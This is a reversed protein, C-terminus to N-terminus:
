GMRRLEAVMRAFPASWDGAREQRFLRMTPYWPSDERELQWRWDPVFPLALWVPRALAGALHAVSTDVSIVLDLAMMVAATDLFGGPGSDFDSGLTEVSMGAIQEPGSDKQLSILRLDPIAALEAFAQLGASRRRDNGNKPNGQWCIGIKRGGQGLRVRWRAVREPDAAVYPVQAPITALTTALRHPISMMPCHLDLSLPRVDTKEPVVTIDPGLTRCLAQLMPQVALIVRAGRRALIPAFRAFQLTDGLGQEAYLYLTKGAPDQGAQWASGEKPPVPDNIIGRWRWEYEDFGQLFNGSLMLAHGLNFHAKANDPAQTVALTLNEIASQIQGLDLLAVGRGLQAQDFGPRLALARGHAELAEQARGLSRLAFGRNNHAAASNPELALARECAALAEQARNLGLLAAGRNSHAPAYEPALAVARDLAALGEEAQEMRSLISGRRNHAEASDSKLALARELSGLADELRGISELLRARNMQADFDAPDIRVAEEFAALAAQKDGSKAAAMGKLNHAAVLKPAVALVREVIRLAGAPDGDGVLDLAEQLERMLDRGAQRQPQIISM